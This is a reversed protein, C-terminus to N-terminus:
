GRLFCKGEEFCVTLLQILVLLSNATSRGSIELFIQQQLQVIDSIKSVLSHVLQVGIYFLQQRLRM